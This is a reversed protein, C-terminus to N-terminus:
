KWSEGPATGELLFTCALASTIHWLSHLVRRGDLHELYGFIFISLGALVLWLAIYPLHFRKRWTRKKMPWYLVTYILIIAGVYIASVGYIILSGDVVFQTSIILIIYITNVFDAYSHRVLVNRTNVMGVNYGESFFKNTNEVSIIDYLAISMIIWGGASVALSVDINSIINWPANGLCMGADFCIHHVSSVIVMASLIGVIDYFRRESAVYAPILYSLNSVVLFISVISDYEFLSELM